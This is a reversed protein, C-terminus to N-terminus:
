TASKLSKVWKIGFKIGISAALVVGIAPVAVALIKLMDGQVGNIMSEFIAVIDFTPTATDAGAMLLMNNLHNLM